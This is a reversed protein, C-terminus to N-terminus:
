RGGRLARWLRDSGGVRRFKRLPKDDLIVMVTQGPKLTALRAGDSSRIVLTNGHNHMRGCEVPKRDPATNRIAVQFPPVAPLTLTRPERGPYVTVDEGPLLLIPEKRRFQEALAPLRALSEASNGTSVVLMAGNM